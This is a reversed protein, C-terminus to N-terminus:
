ECTNRVMQIRCNDILHRKTIRSDFATEIVTRMNADSATAWQWTYLQAYGTQNNDSFRAPVSDYSFNGNPLLPVEPLLIAAVGSTGGVKASLAASLEWDVHKRCKTKPGVLVILVSSDSIYNLQILRKIYDTSVDTDIDGPQVSKSIFLHGFRAELSNRYWQDDRHYYSVFVKRRTLNNQQRLMEQFLSM